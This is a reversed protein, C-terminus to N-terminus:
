ETWGLNVKFRLRSGNATWKQEEIRIWQLQSTFHINKDLQARKRTILDSGFREMRRMVLGQNLNMCSSRKKEEGKVNGVSGERRASSM